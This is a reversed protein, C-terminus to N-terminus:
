TARYWAGSRWRWLLVAALVILEATLGLWAGPAGWGSWRALAIGLPLKLGWSFAVSVVLTFRTDGAADLSLYTVTAVADVVQFVAAILLLTRAIAAVEAEAGFPVLLLDPASVFVVAALLMGAAATQVGAWWAARAQDPRRAGVSQGVLVGTAEAIAVGPLFSALLVRIAVVHAALHTDSVAALAGTLLNWATVDLFRQGGIPAGLRTTEALLARRPRWSTVRLTPWAAVFMWVAGLTMAIAGAWAAGAIGLSPIPGLGPVLIADLAVWLLNTAVNVRAPTRTDGRGEFWSTLGMGLLAIPAALARVRFYVWAEAAVEPTAGLARFIWPSLEGAVAVVVGGFLAMWIAQWGLANATHHRGAGVAHSAAVRVGRILGLPFALYMWSTTVALGIAALPVRGLPAVFIADAASMLSHSLMSVMVPWALHLVVSPRMPAHVDVPTTLTSM